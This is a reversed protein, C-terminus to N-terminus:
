YKVLTSWSTIVSVVGLTTNILLHGKDKFGGDQFQVMIDGKGAAQKALRGASDFAQDLDKEHKHVFPKIIRHYIIEAGNNAMPLMCWTLFVCQVSVYNMGAGVGEWLSKM